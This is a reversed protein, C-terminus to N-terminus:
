SALTPYDVDEVTVISHPEAPTFGKPFTVHTLAELIADDPQSM